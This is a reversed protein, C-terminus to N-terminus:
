SNLTIDIIFRKRVRSYALFVVGFMIILRCTEGYCTIEPIYTIAKM